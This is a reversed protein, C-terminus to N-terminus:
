RVDDEVVGIQPRGEVGGGMGGEHGAALAAREARPQHHMLRDMVPHDVLQGAAGIADPDAHREVFGRLHPRLRTGLLQVLRQAIDPDAPIFAGAQDGAPRADDLAVLAVAEEDLRRHEAAHV